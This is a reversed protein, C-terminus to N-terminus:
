GMVLLTSRNLVKRVFQKKGEYLQWSNSDDLSVGGPDGLEQNENEKRSCAVFLCSLRTLDSLTTVTPPLLLFIKARNKANPEPNNSGYGCFYLSSLSFISSLNEGRLLRDLKRVNTPVHEKGSLSAGTYLDCLKTLKEKQASPVHSCVSLLRFSFLLFNFRPWSMYNRLRAIALQVLIM